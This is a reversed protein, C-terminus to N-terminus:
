RHHIDVVGVLTDQRGELRLAGAAVVLPTAQHRLLTRIREREEEDGVVGRDRDNAWRSASALVPHPDRSWVVWLREVGATEGFYLWSHEPVSRAEAPWVRSSGAYSTPTPFLMHLTDAADPEALVYLHGEDHASVLLRFRDEQRLVLPTEALSVPRAGSADTLLQISLGGAPATTAAGPIPTDPEPAAPAPLLWSGGAWTLAAAAILGLGAAMWRRVTHSATPELEREAVRLLDIVEDFTQIRARADKVTARKVLDVLTPPCGPTLATVTVPRHLVDHLVDALGGKHYRRGTLLEFAMVGFAYVDSAPTAPEGRVQEPSMYEPTGVIASPAEPGRAIPRAIGFDLLKVHGDSTVFINSPKVDRHVIGAAHVARLAEAIEILLRLQRRLDGRRNRAILAGVDEGALLETVLYPRGQYEGVDFVRVVCEHPLRGLARVEALFRRQHEPGSVAARLVKVAVHREIQPDYARYVVGMGGGGIPGEVVYRGIRTGPRLTHSPVTPDPPELIEDGGRELVDILHELQAKLEADGRCAEAVFASRRDPEM